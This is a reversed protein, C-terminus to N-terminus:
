REAPPPGTRRRHRAILQVVVPQDLCGPARAGTTGSTAAPAAPRLPAKMLRGSVARKVLSSAASFPARDDLQVAEVSLPEGLTGNAARCGHSGARGHLEIASRRMAASPRERQRSGKQARAFGAIRGVTEGGPRRTPLAPSPGDVAATTGCAHWLSTSLPPHLSVRRLASMGDSRTM